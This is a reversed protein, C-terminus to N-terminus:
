HHPGTIKHGGASKPIKRGQGRRILISIDQHVPDRSFVAYFRDKERVPAMPDFKCAPHAMKFQIKFKIHILRFNGFFVVPITNVATGAMVAFICKRMGRFMTVPAM